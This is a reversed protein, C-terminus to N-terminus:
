RADKDLYTVKVGSEAFMTLAIKMKPWWSSEKNPPYTVVEIIGAQIIAKACGTCPFWNCYLTSDNVSHGMRAATTIANMEGHVIYELKQEKNKLRCCNHGVGVGSPFGNYGYSVMRNDKVIVAGVKKNPDESWSSYLKAAEMYREHWKWIKEM